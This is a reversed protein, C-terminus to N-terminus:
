NQIRRNIEKQTFINLAGNSSVVIDLTRHRSGQAEQRSPRLAQSRPPLLHGESGGRQCFRGFEAALGSEQRGGLQWPLQDDRERLEM